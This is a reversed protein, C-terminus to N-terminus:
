AVARRHLGVAAPTCRLRIRIRRSARRVGRLLTLTVPLACPMALNLYTLIWIYTLDWCDWPPKLKYTM